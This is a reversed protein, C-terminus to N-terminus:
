RIKRRRMKDLDDVGLYGAGEAYADSRQYNGAAKARDIEENYGPRNPKREDMARKKDKAMM